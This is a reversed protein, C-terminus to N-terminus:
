PVIVVIRSNTSLERREWTVPALRQWRYPSLIPSGQPYPSTRVDVQPWPYILPTKPLLVTRSTKAGATATRTSFTSRVSTVARTSDKESLAQRVAQAGPLARSPTRLKPIAKRLSNVSPHELPAGDPIPSIQTDRESTSTQNQPKQVCLEKTNQETYKICFEQPVLTCGGLITHGLVTFIFKKVTCM